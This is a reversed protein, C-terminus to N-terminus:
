REDPIPAGNVFSSELDYLLILPLVFIYIPIYINEYMFGYIVISIYMYVISRSLCVPVSAFAIHM